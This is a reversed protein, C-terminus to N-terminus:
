HSEGSEEDPVFGSTEVGFEAKLLGVNLHEVEGKMAFVEVHSSPSHLFPHM